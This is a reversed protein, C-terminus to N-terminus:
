ALYVLGFMFAAIVVGVYLYVIINDNNNKVIKEM